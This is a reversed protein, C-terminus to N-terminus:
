SSTPLNLSKVIDESAFKILNILPFLLKSPLFGFGVPVFIKLTVDFVILGFNHAESPFNFSQVSYHLISKKFGLLPLVLARSQFHGYVVVLHNLLSVLVKLCSELVVSSHDLVKFSFDASVLQLDAVKLYQLPLHFLRVPLVPYEITFDISEIGDNPALDLLVIVKPHSM